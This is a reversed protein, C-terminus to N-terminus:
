FPSGYPLGADFSEACKKLAATRGTGSEYANGTVETVTATAATGSVKVNKVPQISRLEYRIGPIETVTYTGQPIDKVVAVGSTGNLTVQAHFTHPDGTVDTGRIEFLFSQQGFPAYVENVAKRITITGKPLVKVPNSVENTYVDLPTKGDKEFVHEYYVDAMNRITRGGAAYKVKVKFSVTYEQKASVSGSAAIVPTMRDM